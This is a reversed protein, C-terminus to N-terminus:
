LDTQYNDPKYWLSFNIGKAKLKETAPAIRDLLQMEFSTMLCRKHELYACVSASLVIPSGLEGLQEQKVLLCSSECWECAGLFYMAKPEVMVVVFM